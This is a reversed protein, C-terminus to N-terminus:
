YSGNTLQLQRVSWSLFSIFYEFYYILIFLLLIPFSLIHFMRFYSIVNFIHLLTFHLFCIFYFPFSFCVLFILVIHPHMFSLYRSLPLSFHSPSLYISIPSQSLFLLRIRPAICSRWKRTRIHGGARTVYRNPIKVERCLNSKWSFCLYYIWM